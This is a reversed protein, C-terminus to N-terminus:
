IKWHPYRTDISTSIFETGLLTMNKISPSYYFFQTIPNGPSIRQQT